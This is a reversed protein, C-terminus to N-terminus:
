CENPKYFYRWDESAKNDMQAILRRFSATKRAAEEATEVQKIITTTGDSLDMRYITYRVKM